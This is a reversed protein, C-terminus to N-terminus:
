SSSSRTDFLPETVSLFAAGNEELLHFTNLMHRTNRFLRSSDYCVLIAKHEIVLEIAKQLGDREIKRGSKADSLEAIIDYHQSKAYHRISNRQLTPSLRTQGYSSVRVLSVIKGRSPAGNKGALAFNSSM